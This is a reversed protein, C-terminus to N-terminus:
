RSRQQWANAKCMLYLEGQPGEQSLCKPVIEEKLVFELGMLDAPVTHHARM